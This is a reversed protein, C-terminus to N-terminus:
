DGGPAGPTAGPEGMFPDSQNTLTGDPRVQDHMYITLADKPDINRPSHASWKELTGGDVVVWVDENAIISLTTM